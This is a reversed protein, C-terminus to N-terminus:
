VRATWFSVHSAILALDAGFRRFLVLTEAGNETLFPCMRSKKM